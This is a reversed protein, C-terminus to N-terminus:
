PTLNFALDLDTAFDTLLEKLKDAKWDAASVDISGTSGRETQIWVRYESVSNGTPGLKAIQRSEIVTYNPM